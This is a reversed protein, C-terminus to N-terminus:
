YMPHCLYYCFLVIVTCCLLLLVAYLCYCLVIVLMVCIFLVVCISIDNFSMADSDGFFVSFDNHLPLATGNSAKEPRYHSLTIKKVQKKRNRTIDKIEERCKKEPM